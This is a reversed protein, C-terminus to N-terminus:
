RQQLAIKWEEVSNLRPQILPVNPFINDEFQYTFAKPDNKNALKDNVM